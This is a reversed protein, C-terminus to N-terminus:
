SRKDNRDSFISEQDAGLCRDITKPVMDIIEEDVDKMLFESESRSDM